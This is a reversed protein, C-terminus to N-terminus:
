QWAQKQIKKAKDVDQYENIIILSSGFELIDQM